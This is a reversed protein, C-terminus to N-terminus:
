FLLCYVEISDSGSDDTCGKFNLLNLPYFKTGLYNLLEQATSEPQIIGMWLRVGSGLFNVPAQVISVM